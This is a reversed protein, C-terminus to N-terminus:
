DCCCAILVIRLQTKDKWQKNEKEKKKQNIIM